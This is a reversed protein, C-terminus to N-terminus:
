MIKSFYNQQDFYKINNDNFGIKEYVLTNKIIELFVKESAYHTADILM